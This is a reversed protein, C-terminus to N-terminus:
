KYVECWSNPCYDGYTGSLNDKVLKEGCGRCVDIELGKGDTTTQLWIVEKNADFSYINGPEIVGEYNSKYCIARVIVPISSTPDLDKDSDLFMFEQHGSATGYKDAKFRDEPRLQILKVTKEVVITTAVSNGISVGPSITNSPPFGRLIAM